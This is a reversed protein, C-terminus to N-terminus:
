RIGARIMPRPMRRSCIREGRAQVPPNFGARAADVQARVVAGEAHDNIM